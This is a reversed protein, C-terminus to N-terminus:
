RFTNLWAIATEKDTFFQVPVHTKNVKILFNILLRQALSKIVYAEAISFEVGEVTSMYRRGEAEVSSYNSAIILLLKRERNPTLDGVAKNLMKIDSESYNRDTTNIQVIEDSRIIMESHGLDISINPNIAM